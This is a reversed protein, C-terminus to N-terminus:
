LFCTPRLRQSRPNPTAVFVQIVIKIGAIVAALCVPAAVYGGTGVVVQPRFERLIRWSDIVSKILRLPLLLNVPSIVPRFLRVAPVAAYDYGASSVAGSEMGDPTGVFLVRAAPHALKIEDAIAIAPYM